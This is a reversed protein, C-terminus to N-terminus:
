ASSTEGHGVISMVLERLREAAADRGQQRLVSLVDAEALERLVKRRLAADHVRDLIRSRFEGLLKLYTEYEPGFQQQLQEKIRRAVSPSAGGTSVAICLPGRRICAPVIFNSRGPQDVVNVLIGRAKADASVCANVSEDDTAAIVLVAGDLHSSDYPAEVGHVRPDNRLQPSLNPAIAWVRAGAALLAYAKRQAVGGGGVVVCKKGTVDLAVPYYNKM